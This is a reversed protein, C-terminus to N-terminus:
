KHACRSLQQDRRQAAAKWVDPAVNGCWAIHAKLDPSWDAGTFGCKLKENQQQQKLATAGYWDCNTQAFSSAPALVLASFATVAGVAAYTRITLM